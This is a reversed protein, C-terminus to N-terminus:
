TRRAARGGSASAKCSAETDATAADKGAKALQARKLSCAASDQKPKLVLVADFDEIAADYRKLKLRAEGRGELAILDHPKLKLAAECDALADEIHDGLALRSRCRGVLATESQAGPFLTLLENYFDMAAKFRGTRRYAEARRYAIRYQGPSLKLAEEFDRRAEAERGKALRGEGRALLALVDSPNRQLAADFDALAPDPQGNELYAVGRNYFHSADKSDLKIAQSLDAIAEAYDGRLLRNIGRQSFGAADVPPPGDDVPSTEAEEVVPPTYRINVDSRTLEKLADAIRDADKADFEAATSREYADMTAVGDTVASIRHYFVGGIERDVDPANFVRFGAGKDPLVVTVLWRQYRPFNIRYPADLHPGPERRFNPNYGLNSEDIQFDRIRAGGTWDMKASGEMTMSLVRHDEDFVAAVSKPTIWPYQRSWLERMSRDADTQNLAALGLHREVADDGRYLFEGHAPAPADLGASADLRLRLEYTPEPYPTQVLKELAAGSAQVPLAWDFDPVRIDDLHRDGLRTGDLWYVKDGIRARVLVHDFSGLTPLQDSLLDGAATNVLAPEAEIGLERLIALLLVTKGKCDGFRRSWTLDAAAPVYGGLNMSLALYRVQDQVLRLAKEARTKPHPSAARIKAIEDQLPSKPELASAKAYLPAFLSSVEAWDAFQTTELAALRAFRLPADKPPKPAEYNTLDVTLETQGGRHVPEIHGLDDTARWRMPKSAPWSERFHVRGIAGPRSVYAGGESRGQYVPDLRHTTVSLDVIDGVQLGELQFNGTLTGDLMSMELNTERRLVTFTKGGALADIVKGGRIIQLRHVTLTETDPRWAMLINGATTLAQPSLVQFASESYYDNGDSGYNSQQDELLVQMAVGSGATPPPIPTPTVWAPVPGYQLQESARAAGAALVLAACLLYRLVM